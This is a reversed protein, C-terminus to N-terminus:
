NGWSIYNDGDSRYLNYGLCELRRKSAETLSVRLETSFRGVSASEKVRALVQDVQCNAALTKAQHATLQESM